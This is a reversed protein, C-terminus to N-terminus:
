ALLMCHENLCVWASVFDHIYNVILKTIPYIVFLM